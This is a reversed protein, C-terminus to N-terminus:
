ATHGAYYHQFPAFDVKLGQTNFSYPCSPDIYEPMEGNSNLHAQWPASERCRRWAIVLNEVLAPEGYLIGFCLNAITIFAEKRTFTEFERRQRSRYSKRKLYPGLMQELRAVKRFQSQQM